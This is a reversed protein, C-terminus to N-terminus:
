PYIRHLTRAFPITERRPRPRMWASLVNSAMGLRLPSAATVACTSIGHFAEKPLNHQEIRAYSSM